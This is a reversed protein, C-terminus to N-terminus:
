FELILSEIGVQHTPFIIGSLDRTKYVRAWFLLLSDRLSSKPVQLVVFKFFFLFFSRIFFLPLISRFLFSSCLFFSSRQLELQVISRLGSSSCSSRDSSSYLFFLDLSCRHVSSSRLISSSRNSLQVSPPHNSSRTKLDARLLISPSFFTLFFELRLFELEVHIKKWMM